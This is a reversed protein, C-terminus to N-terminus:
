SWKKGYNGTYLSEPRILINEKRQEEAHALWGVVRSMAFLPTFLESEIGIGHLLYATFFEVNTHLDRGPKYIKLYKLAIQETKKFLNDIEKEKESYFMEGAKKLVDARPDRTKYIRHGFGMLRDGQDLQKKIYSEPDNSKAIEFVMDLVPGPAGGHKPGKLSGLAGLVCSLLDSDTSSISRSVFTSANMGHDLVTILYTELAKVKNKDPLKGEIMFFFNEVHSLSSKPHIIPLKQKLRWYYSIITPFSSIIQLSIDEKIYNFSLFLTSLAVQLTEFASINNKVMQKITEITLDTLERYKSLKNKFLQIEEETGIKNNLLLFAAEEFSANFALETIDYGCITLIGDTGNVDSLNTKNVYVDKLGNEIKVKKDMRSNLASNSMM